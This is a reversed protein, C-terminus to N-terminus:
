AGNGALVVVISRLLIRLDLWLSWHEIYELDLALYREFSPDERATVQWLGTLGPTVDLRRLQDLRYEQVESCIPPRPGVLSMDGKFVNWLQPLEDVSHKRLFRGVRTIRPDGAIKFIAGERQNLRRLRNKLVEANSVMTRFKYCTFKRGKKGVRLARYFIPGPSDMTIILAVIVLVPVLLLLALLSGAIDVIRKLLRGTTPIPERYLSLVPLSGVFELAARRGSDGYLDPVIKVDLNNM